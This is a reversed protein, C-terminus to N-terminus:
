DAQAKEAKTYPVFRGLFVLGTQFQASPDYLQVVDVDCLQGTSTHTVLVDFGDLADAGADPRNVYLKGGRGEYVIATRDIIRSSRIDQLYLCDVPEGAVRGQLAKALKAEGKPPGALVPSSALVLSGILLPILKRM